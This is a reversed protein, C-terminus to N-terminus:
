LLPDKVNAIYRELWEADPTVAGSAVLDFQEDWIATLEARLQAIRARREEPSLREAEITLLTRALAARLQQKNAATLGEEM